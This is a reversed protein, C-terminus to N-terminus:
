KGTDTLWARISADKTAMEALTALGKGAKDIDKYYAVMTPGSGSMLVEEADLEEKQGYASKRQLKGLTQEEAGIDGIEQELTQNLMEKKSM